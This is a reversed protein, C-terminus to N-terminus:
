LTDWTAWCNINATGLSTNNLQVRLSSSFSLNFPLWGSIFQGALADERELNTPDIIFNTQAGGDINFLIKVSAGSATSPFICQIGNLHGGTANYTPILDVTSNSTSITATSYRPVPAAHALAPVLASVLLVLGLQKIKM